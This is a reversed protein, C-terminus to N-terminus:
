IEFCYEDGISYQYFLEESVKGSAYDSNLGSGSISNSASNPFYNPRFYFYFSGKVEEKNLIIVCEQDKGCCYSLLFVFTLFFNKM